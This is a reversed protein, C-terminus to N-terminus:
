KKGDPTKVRKSYCYNDGEDMPNKLKKTEKALKKQVWLVRNREKREIM